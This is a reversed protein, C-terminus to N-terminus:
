TLYPRQKIRGEEKDEHDKSWLLTIVIDTHDSATTELKSMSWTEHRYLMASTAHIKMCNKEDDIPMKETFSSDVTQVRRAVVTTATM